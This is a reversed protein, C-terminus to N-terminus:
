ISDLVYVFVPKKEALARDLDKHWPPAAAVPLAFALLLLARRIMIRSYGVRARASQM